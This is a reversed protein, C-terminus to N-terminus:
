ALVQPHADWFSQQIIDCHLVVVQAQLREVPTGDEALKKVVPVKQRVLVSGQTVVVV